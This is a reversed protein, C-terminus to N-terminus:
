EKERTRVLNRHMLKRMIKRRSYKPCTTVSIIYGIFYVENHINM